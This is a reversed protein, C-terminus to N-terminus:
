FNMVLKLRRVKMVGPLSFSKKYETNKNSDTFYVKGAYPIYIKADDDTGDYKLTYLETTDNTIFVTFNCFGWKRFKWKLDWEWCEKRERTKYVIIDADDPNKVELLVLSADEPNAMPIVTQGMSSTCIFFLIFILLRM